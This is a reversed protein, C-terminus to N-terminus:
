NIAITVAGRYRNKLPAKVSTSEQPSATVEIRWPEFDPRTLEIQHKGEPLKLDLPSYGVPQGDVTITARPPVSEVHVTGGNEKSKEELKQRNEQMVADLNKSAATPIKLPTRQGGSFASQVRSGLATGARSTIATSKSAAAGYEVAAQGFASLVFVAQVLVVLV